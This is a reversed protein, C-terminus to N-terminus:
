PTSFMTRTTGKVSLRNRHIDIARLYSEEVSQQVVSATFLKARERGASALREALGEDDFLTRIAEALEDPEGPEVLLGCRGNDVIDTLGGVRSVVLPTGAALCEVAVQGFPEGWVSPVVGVTANVWGAMVAGHPVNTVVSVGPQDFDVDVGPVAMGALVLPIELGSGWLQRHAELLVDVGKHAGLAGAFFIYPGEPPVFEPRPTDLSAEVVSDPVFSPIVVM